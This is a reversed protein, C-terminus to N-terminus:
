PPSPRLVSIPADDDDEDSSEEVHAEVVARRELEQADIYSMFAPSRWQGARLGDYLLGLWAVHDLQGAALIEALNAGSEILDQAHGRRLDHTRYLQADKVELLDLM